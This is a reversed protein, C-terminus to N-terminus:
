STTPVMHRTRLARVAVMVLVAAAVAAVAVLVFWWVSTGGSTSTPPPPSVLQPSDPPEPAYRASANAALCLAALALGITATLTAAVIRVLRILKM